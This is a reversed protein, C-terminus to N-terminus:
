WRLLMLGVSVGPGITIALGHEGAQPRRKEITREIVYFISPTGVNGHEALMEYSIEAQEYPLNLAERACDIIRRGGPHIMWHDVMHGTMGACALFRDVLDGLHEGALDPLERILHLYSDAPDLQMCVAGLSDPIQHVQSALIQPGDSDASSSGILMAACGDGFISSGVTKSRPDQGSARMLLGSMSEAGVILCVKDPHEPLARQALRVLPVASACGVGVLHYKDTAPSMKFHEILRYSLPPGGLSYLSASVVTGIQAPDVELKEVAQVASQFLFEEVEATRGQLNTSLMRPSIHMHRRKVGCRSFIRRAFEDDALGLLQLMQQQDFVEQPAVSTLGLMRTPAPKLHNGALAPREGPHPRPTQRPASASQAGAAASRAGFRTWFAERSNLHPFPTKPMAVQLFQCLPEWGERIDYVLLQEPAVAGAVQLQHRQFIELAYDREDFRDHFLDRWIAVDVARLVTPSGERAHDSQEIARTARLSAHCSEYWADPDRVSLIVKAQPWAQLMEPYFRAGLWDVSAAWGDFASHWDIRQGNAAQEWHTAIQVAGGASLSELSHLCPGVGLEELAVKLSMTGTRGFGVGIVKV